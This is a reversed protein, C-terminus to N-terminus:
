GGRRRGVREWGREDRRHEAAEGAVGGGAPGGHVGQEGGELALVAAVGLVGETWFGLRYQLAALVSMRLQGGVLRLYYGPGRGASM